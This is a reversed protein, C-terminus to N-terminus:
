RRGRELVMCRVLDGPEVQAVDEAVVALANAVALDAVLHSGHGGAPRVRPRGAADSTLVARVFQRKGAPSTWGETVEATVSPRHLEPEGLVRRLAPRVFVEFSVYASVPNGPLTFIPTGDGITGLGQPMGPQMAVKEFTVTGLRSLVEKVVDYAGASVGGSTVVVDARVLQDELVQLLRQPDDDVIGVRYAVAGTEQVAATLATSNSDTVQGHAVPRGPEVLESGTSLVVVRPRPHVRVRGRGTAALLALSRPTLRAGADLLAEGPQVDEGARRVHQGPRPARTITVSAVGADTWEVPVVAGTGRPVPAGTMIRAATGPVLVLPEGAGAPLDAVVPLVVPGSGSAGAVDEVRVAYGDMASGDFAPLAGPAVVDEALVCDLAELLPVDLPALPAVLGLADALHQEVPKLPM